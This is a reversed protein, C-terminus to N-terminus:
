AQLCGRLMNADPLEELIADGARYGVVSNNQAAAVQPPSIVECWHKFTAYALVAARDRTHESRGDETTEEQHPPEDKKESEEQRDFDGPNDLFPNRATM